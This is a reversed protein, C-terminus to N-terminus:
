DGAGSAPGVTIGYAAALRLAQIEWKVGEYVLRAQKRMADIRPGGAAAERIKVSLDHHNSPEYFLAAGDFTHRMARLEPLVLPKDLAVYEFVKSPLILETILNREYTAVGVDSQSMHAMVAERPLAGGIQVIGGLGLQRVLTRLEERLSEPGHGYVALTVPMQKWLGAVARILTVLDRDRDVGGVYVIHLESGQEPSAPVHSPLSVTSLDPSNYIVLVRNAAVGRAVLSERITENVVLIRTAVLCSVKEVALAIAYGVRGPFRSALIEPLAEHLDLIVPIRRLRAGFAAFVLFDPLSHVHVTGFRNRRGFIWLAWATMLFFATYQYLYRLRGGREIRLPLRQVRVGGVIAKETEDPHRACLVTVARGMRVLTEAERRVRPDWPYYTYAVM